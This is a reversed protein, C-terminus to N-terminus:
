QKKINTMNFAPRKGRKLMVKKCDACVYFWKGSKGIRTYIVKEHECKM